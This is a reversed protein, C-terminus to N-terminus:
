GLHFSLVERPRILLVIYVAIGVLFSGTDTIVRQGDRVFSLAGAAGYIRGEEELLPEGRWRGFSVAWVVIRGTQTVVVWFISAPLENM